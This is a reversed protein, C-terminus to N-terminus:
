GALTEAFIRKLTEHPIDQKLYIQVMGKPTFKYGALEEKYRAAAQAEINLHDKFPILRVFSEGVYYSPIKAWLREEPECSVSEFITQRVTHFLDVVADPYQALYAKVQENMEYGGHVPFRLRKEFCYANSNGVYKGYAACRRFGLQSYFDIAHKNQVRTELVLKGYGLLGAKEELKLVIRRGIGCTNKRAYVRKVEAVRESVPRIAGCGYPVGDLYAVLFVSGATQVDASSFHATGDDGTIETLVANLEAILTQADADEIDTEAIRIEAM